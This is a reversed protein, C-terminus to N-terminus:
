RLLSERLEQCLVEAQHQEGDSIAHAIADLRYIVDSYLLSALQREAVRRASPREADTAWYKVTVIATLEYEFQTAYPRSAVRGTHAEEMRVKLPQPWRSPREVNRKRDILTNWISEPM